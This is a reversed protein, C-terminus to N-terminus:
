AVTPPPLQALAHQLALRYGAVGLGCIVGVAIPSLFSHHRFAERAHVNSIHVEIFPLAVGALADRLAVSTHTLGGPNILIYRTGDGRAAHIRDILAGEHNSQFCQLGVGADAALQALEAEIMPLTVHGYVAPERTGLLNLNPGNLVLISM